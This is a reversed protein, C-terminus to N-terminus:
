KRTGKAHFGSPERRTGWDSGLPTTAVGTIRGLRAVPDVTPAANSKSQVTASSGSIQKPIMVCFGQKRPGGCASGKRQPAATAKGTSGDNRIGRYVERRPDAHRNIQGTGTGGLPQPNDHETASFSARNTLLVCWNEYRKQYPNPPEVRQRHHGTKGGSGSGNRWGIWCPTTTGTKM